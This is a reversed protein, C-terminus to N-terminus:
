ISNFQPGLDAIKVAAYALTFFWGETSMTATVEFAENRAREKPNLYYSTVASGAKKMCPRDLVCVLFLDDTLKDATEEDVFPRSLAMSVSKPAEIWPKFAEFDNLITFQEVPSYTWTESVKKAQKVDFVFFNFAIPELLEINPATATVSHFTLTTWRMSKLRIPNGPRRSDKMGPFPAPITTFLPDFQSIAQAPTVNGSATSSFDLYEEPIESPAPMERVSAEYDRKIMLAPARFFDAGPATIHAPIGESSWEPSTVLSIRKGDLHEPQLESAHSSLWSTVAAEDIM